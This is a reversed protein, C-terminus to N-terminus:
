GSPSPYTNPGRRRHRVSPRGSCARGSFLHSSIKSSRESPSISAGRITDEKKWPKARSLAKLARDQIIAKATFYLPFCTIVYALSNLLHMVMGADQAYISAIRGIAFFLPNPVGANVRERFLDSLERPGSQILYAYEDDILINTVNYSHFLHFLFSCVVVAFIFLVDSNM